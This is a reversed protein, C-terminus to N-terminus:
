KSVPKQTSEYNVAAEVRRNKLRGEATNNNAIPKEEGYGIATIRKSDVGLKEVLYRKVSDAREQSLKKNLEAPGINDTYGEIYVKIDPNKKMVAAFDKLDKDYISMISAKGTESKIDLTARGKEIIQKEVVTVVEPAPAVVPAAVPAPAPAPPVVAVPAPAPAVEVAVPEPEAVKKEKKSLYFGMGFSGEINNLFKDKYKSPLMVDKVDLRVIFYDTVFYKMGLGFDVAFYNRDGGQYDDEGVTDETLRTSRAGVGILAYPVLRSDPMFYYLGELMYLWSRARMEEDKTQSGVYQVRGEIGIHKLPDYGVWVGALNSNTIKEQPDFGYWGLEFGGAVGGPTIGAFCPTASLVMFISIVLLFRKM